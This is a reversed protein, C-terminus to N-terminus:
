RLTFATVYAYDGSWDAVAILTADRKLTVGSPSYFGGEDWPESGDDVNVGYQGLLAGGPSLKLLQPPFIITVYLNGAADLAVGTPGGGNIAAEGLMALLSGTPSYKYIVDDWFSSLYLNGDPGVTLGAGFSFDVADITFASLFAGSASFKQIRTISQGQDNENEDLAYVSGDSALALTLPSYDGFQGQGTGAPGFTNLVAGDPSMVTIKNDDAFSEAIYLNGNAAVEVDDPAFYINNGTYVALEQGQLNYVRLGSAPDAVYLRGRSEDIAMGAPSNLQGDVAADGSARWLVNMGTDGPTFLTISNLVATHLGSVTAIWVEQRAHTIIAVFQAGNSLVAVGGATTVGNDVWTYNASLGAVDNVTINVPQSFQGGGDTIDQSYNSLLTSLSANSLGGTLFMYPGYDPEADPPSLYAEDSYSELEYAVITRFSFGAGAIRIPDGLGGGAPTASPIVGPLARTPSPTPTPTDNGPNPTASPTSTPPTVGPLLTATPSATVAPGPTLTPTSLGPTLGPTPSFAVEPSPMLNSSGPTPAVSGPTPLESGPTAAPFGPAGQALTPEVPQGPLPASTPNAPLSEASVPTDTVFVLAAVDTPTAAVVAAPEDAQGGCAALLLALCAVISALWRM